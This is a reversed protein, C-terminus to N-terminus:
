LVKSNVPESLKSPLQTHGFDRLYNTVRKEIKFCFSADCIDTAEDLLRHSVPFVLTVSRCTDSLQPTLTLCQVPFSLSGIRGILPPVTLKKGGSVVM